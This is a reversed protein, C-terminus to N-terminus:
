AGFARAMVDEKMLELTAATLAPQAAADWIISEHDPMMHFIAANSPMIYTLSADIRRCRSECIARLVNYVHSPIETHSAM